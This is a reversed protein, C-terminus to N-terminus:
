RYNRSRTERFSDYDNRFEDGAGEAFSSIRVKVDNDLLRVRAMVEEATANLIESPLTEEEVEMKVEKTAEATVAPSDATVVPKVDASGATPPLPPPASDM